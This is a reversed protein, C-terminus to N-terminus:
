PSRGRRSSAELIRILSSRETEGAPLPKLFRRNRLLPRGGGERTVFYSRGTSRKGTIVGTEDWRGTLPNQLRV